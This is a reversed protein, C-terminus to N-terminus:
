SSFFLAPELAAEIAKLPLLPTRPDDIVARGTDATADDFSDKVRAAESEDDDDDVPAGRRQREGAIMEAAAVVSRAAVSGGAEAPVPALLRLTMIM